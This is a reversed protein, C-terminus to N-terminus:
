KSLMLWWRALSALGRALIRAPFGRLGSRPGRCMRPWDTTVFGRWGAPNGKAAALQETCIDYHPGWAPTLGSLDLNPYDARFALEAGQLLMLDERSGPAMGTGSEPAWARYTGCWQHWLVTTDGDKILNGGGYKRTHYPLLYKHHKLKQCIGYHCEYNWAGPQRKGKVGRLGWKAKFERWNFLLFTADTSGPAFRWWGNFPPGFRTWDFDSPNRIREEIGVLDYRGYGLDNLFPELSCFLVTDHDILCVYETECRDLLRLLADRYTCEELWYRIGFETRYAEMEEPDGGRKSVLISATPHFKRISALHINMMEAGSWYPTLFSILETNM